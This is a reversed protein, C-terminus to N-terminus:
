PRPGCDDDGHECPSDERRTGVAVVETVPERLVRSSIVKRRPTRGETTTVQYTLERTGEAGPTVVRESRRPMSPDRVRQTRYPIVETVTMTTTTVAPRAATGPAAPPPNPPTATGAPLAAPSRTAAATPPADTAGAAPAPGGPRRGFGMRPGEGHPEPLDTARPPFPYALRAPQAPPRTVLAAVAAAGGGLPLLLATGGIAMRVWFPLRLWPTKRVTFVDDLRM